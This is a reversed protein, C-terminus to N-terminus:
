GPRDKGTRSHDPPTGPAEPDGSPDLVRTLAALVHDIDFPKLVVEVGLTRLHGQLEEAQRVSATCVVIPIDATERDMKLLQLFQWGVPEGGFIFDLIVADPKIRKVDAHKEGVDLASFNDLSVRYGEEELFARFAELIEITDNIVLIHKAQDDKGM